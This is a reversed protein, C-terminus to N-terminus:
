PLAELATPTCEQPATLPNCRSPTGDPLEFWYDYKEVPAPFDTSILHAGSNLAAEARTHDNTRAQVVYDDAATRVMYGEGVAAVIQDFSSVPNGYEVFAAFSDGPHGRAFFLAGALNPYLAVYNQQHFSSDNLIFLVRNRTTGLTPWEGVTVAEQLTGYEGRVEDPVVIRELPWVALIDDELEEYHGVISVPDFDDKPEVLVFLLHAGPHGDSWEKLLGLCGVFTACTTGEDLVPVHYVRFGEGPHYHVDLEFQRVGMEELQDPLPAHNYQFEPIDVGETELHYSNHTGKVQLHNIRLEDDLPYSPIRVERFLEGPLDAPTIDAPSIDSGEPDTEQASDVLAQDCLGAEVSFAEEPVVDDGAGCAGAVQALFCALVLLCSVRGSM